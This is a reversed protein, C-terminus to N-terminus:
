MLEACVRQPLALTSPVIRSFQRRIWQAGAM